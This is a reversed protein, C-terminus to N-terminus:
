VKLEKRSERVAERLKQIQGLEVQIIGKKFKKWGIKSPLFLFNLHEIKNWKPLYKVVM